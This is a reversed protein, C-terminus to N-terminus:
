ISEGLNVQDVFAGSCHCLALWPKVMGRSRDLAHKPEHYPTDRVCYATSPCPRSCFRARGTLLSWDLVGFFCSM